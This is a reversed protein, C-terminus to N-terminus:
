TADLKHKPKVLHKKIIITNKLTSIKSILCNNNVINEIINNLKLAFTIKNTSLSLQLQLENMITKRLRVKVSKCDIKTSELSTIFRKAKPVDVADKKLTARNNYSANMISSDILKHKNVCDCGVITAYKTYKNKICWLNNTHCIHGCVCYDKEDNDDNEFLSVESGAETQIMVDTINRMISIDGSIIMYLAFLEPMSKKCGIMLKHNPDNFPILHQNNVIDQRITKQVRLISEYNRTNEYGITSELLLKHKAQTNYAFSILKQNFVINVISVKVM